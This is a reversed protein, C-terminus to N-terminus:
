QCPNMEEAQPSISEDMPAKEEGRTRGALHGSETGDSTRGKPSLISSQSDRKRESPTNSVGASDDACAKGAATYSTASAGTEFRVQRTKGHEKGNNQPFM